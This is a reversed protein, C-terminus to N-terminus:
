SAKQIVYFAYKISYNVIKLGDLARDLSQSSFTSFSLCKSNNFTILKKEKFDAEIRIRM